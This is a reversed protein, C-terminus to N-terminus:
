VLTFKSKLNDQGQLRKAVLKDPRSDDFLIVVCVREFLIDGDINKYM